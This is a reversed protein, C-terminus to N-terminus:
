GQGAYNVKEAEKLQFEDSYHTYVTTTITGSLSHGAWISVVESQVGCEKCRTIFTHRLEHPHHDPFLRKMRTAVTNLNANKAKEFDIYPIVEKIKLWEEAYDTFLVKDATKVEKAPQSIITWPQTYGNRYLTIIAQEKENLAANLLNNEDATQELVTELSDDDSIRKQQQKVSLRDENASPMTSSHRTFRHTNNYEIRDLELLSEWERESVETRFPTSQITKRLISM